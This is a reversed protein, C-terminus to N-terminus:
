REELNLFGKSLQVGRIERVRARRKERGSAGLARSVYSVEQRPEYVLDGNGSDWCLVGLQGGSAKVVLGSQGGTSRGADREMNKNSHSPTSHSALHATCDRAHVTKERTVRM